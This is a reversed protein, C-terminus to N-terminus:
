LIPLLAYYIQSFYVSLPTAARISVHADREESWKRRFNASAGNLESAEEWLQPVKIDHPEVQSLIRRSILLCM